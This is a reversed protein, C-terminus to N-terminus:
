RRIQGICEAFHEDLFEYEFPHDPFNNQWVSQVFAMRVRQANGNIKVSMNSFGWDKQNYM